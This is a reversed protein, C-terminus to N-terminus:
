LHLVEDRDTILKAGGSFSSSRWRVRGAVRVEGRVNEMCTVKPDNKSTGSLKPEQHAKRRRLFYRLHDEGSEKRWM